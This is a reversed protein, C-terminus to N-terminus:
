FVCSILTCKSKKKVYLTAALIAAATNKAKPEIIISGPDIGVEQLQQSVIFRFENNTIVVPENFKLNKSSRVRLAAKQFLTKKYLLQSFQKPYSKRSLPWLRTRSGGALIVPTIKTLHTM